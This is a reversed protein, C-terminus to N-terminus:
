RDHYSVALRSRKVFLRLDSVASMSVVRAGSSETAALELDNPARSAILVIAPHLESILERTSETPSSLLAVVDTPANAQWRDLVLFSGPGSAVVISRGAIGVRASLGGRSDAFLELRDDNGLDIIAKGMVSLVKGRATGAGVLSQHEDAPVTDPAPVLVANAHVAAAMAAFGADTDDSRRTLMAVLSVSKGAGIAELARAVAQPANEDILLVTAGNRGWILMGTRGRLDLWQISTGSPADSAARVSRAAAPAAGLVTAAIVGLVLPVVGSQSRRRVGPGARSLGRVAGRKAISRRVRSIAGPAALLSGYWLVAFPLPRVTVAIASGPLRAFFHIMQQAADILLSLPAAIVSSPGASMWEILGTLLALCTLLPTFPNFLANVIPAYPNITGFASLTVPLTSLSVALSVALASIFSDAVSHLESEETGSLVRLFGARINPELLTIGAAAGFTLQFGADGLTRPSGASVAAAALVLLHIRSYPRGSLVALCLLGTIVVGRMVSPSFGSLGGYSTALLLALVAARRRGVFPALVSLVTGYILMLNFASVVVVHSLGTRSLERRFPAPLSHHNGFLLTAAFASEDAPLAERLGDEIRGRVLRWTGRFGSDTASAVLRTHPFVMSAVVGKTELWDAYGAPATYGGPPDIRGFLELEDGETVKASAPLVLGLRGSGPQWDGDVERALVTVTVSVSAPYVDGYADARALVRATQGIDRGANDSPLPKSPPSNWAAAIIVIFLAVAAHLTRRLLGRSPLLAAIVVAAPAAVVPQTGATIAFASALWAIAAALLTM